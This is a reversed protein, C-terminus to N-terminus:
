SNFDINNRRCYEEITSHILNRTENSVVVYIRLETNLPLTLIANKIANKNSLAHHILRSIAITPAIKNVVEMFNPMLNADSPGVFTYNNKLLFPQFKEELAFVDENM